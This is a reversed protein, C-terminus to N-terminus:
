FIGGINYRRNRAGREHRDAKTAESRVLGLDIKVSASQLYFTQNRAMLDM